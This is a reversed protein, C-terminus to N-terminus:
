FIENLIRTTWWFLDVWYTIRPGFFNSFGQRLCHKVLLHDLFMQQLQKV